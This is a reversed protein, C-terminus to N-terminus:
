PATLTKRTRLKVVDSRSAVSVIRKAKGGSEALTRSPTYTVDYHSGIGRAIEAADTFLDAPVSPTRVNGGTEVALEQLRTEGKMWEERRTRLMKKREGDLDVIIIQQAENM